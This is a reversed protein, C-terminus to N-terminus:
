GTIIKQALYNFGKIPKIYINVSIFLYFAFKNKSNFNTKKVTNNILQNKFSILSSKSIDNKKYHYICILFIKFLTGLLKNKQKLSILNFFKNYYKISADIQRNLYDEINYNVRNTSIRYFCDTFGTFQKVKINKQLLLRTSLEVDQLRNFSEDFGNVCKIAELRWLPQLISWPLNHQLFDNLPDSSNPVWLRSDDNISNKFVGMQFVYIQFEPYKTAQSFRFELCNKHLIDDADLFVVFESNCKSLGLNRCYNAGKNTENRNVSIRKDYTFTNAIYFSNDTSCDDIIFLQWSSFKQNIVSNITDTLFKDKNYLPIIISIKPNL